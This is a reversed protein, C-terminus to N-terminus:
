GTGTDDFGQLSSTGELGLIKQSYVHAEKAWGFTEGAAIGAVHTGHGYWDRDHDLSQTFAGGGYLSWDITQYRDSYEPHDVEVGGDQIVIDVGKGTLTYYYENLSASDNTGYIDENRSNICRILGWNKNSGTDITDKTFNGRQVGNNIIYIDDRFEPPIEVEFVRDDNRVLEAEEETLSYWTQRESAPRSNPSDVRRNPIYLNGGDNENEMDDWFSQYDVGKHLIVNYTKM